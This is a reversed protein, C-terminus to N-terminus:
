IVVSSGVSYVRWLISFPVALMETFNVSGV